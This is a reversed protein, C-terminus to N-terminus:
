AEWPAPIGPTSGTKPVQDGIKVRLSCLLRRAEEREPNYAGPTMRLATGRADTMFVTMNGIFAVM